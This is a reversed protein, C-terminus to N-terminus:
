LMLNPSYLVKLGFNRFTREDMGFHQLTNSITIFEALFDAVKGTLSNNLTLRELSRNSLLARLIAEIGERTYNLVLIKLTITTRIFDGLAVSDRLSLGGDIHLVELSVARELIMELETEFMNYGM